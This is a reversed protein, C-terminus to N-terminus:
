SNYQKLVVSFFYISLDHVKQCFSNRNTSGMFAKTGKIVSFNCKSVGQDDTHFEVDSIEIDESVFIAKNKAREEKSLVKNGDTLPQLM